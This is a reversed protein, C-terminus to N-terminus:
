TMSNYYLTTDDGMYYLNPPMASPANATDCFRDINDCKFLPGKKEDYHKKLFQKNVSEVNVYLGIYNGQVYLKVLNTEGSPLYKRYINSAIIDKMFTPDMWANALKLKKYGLLTQDEIFYDIDINYPVKVNGNDNPLCFTSNGKYRVGVSDYVIGNLTLKAPIRTDPNYYWADVLYSHYNPNYFELNIVRLSDEDFLGGPSDYLDQPNYINQSLCLVPLFVCFVAVFKM